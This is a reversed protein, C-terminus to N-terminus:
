GTENHWTALIRRARVELEECLREAPESVTSRLMAVSVQRALAYGDVPRIALDLESEYGTLALRPILAAAIGAAVFGKLIAYDDTRMVRVPEFGRQACAWSLVRDCPDWDSAGMIWGEDRLQDLPIRDLAALHHGAPLALLLPDELLPRLVFGEGLDLPDGPRSYVLAMHVSGARLADVVSPLEGEVISVNVGQGALQRVASPLLLAGATPFTAVRLSMAGHDVLASVEQEMLEVRSLVAEMHPLVSRGVETLRAGRPGRRVLPARFHSELSALHHAVTPQSHHLSRAAAALSGERAIARLVEFQRLELM